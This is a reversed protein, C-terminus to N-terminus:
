RGDRVTGFNHYFNIVGDTILQDLEANRAANFEEETMYPLGDTQVEKTMGLRDIHSCVCYDSSWADESGYTATLHAEGEELTNFGWAVMYGGEMSWATWPGSGHRATETQLTFTTGDSDTRPTTNPATM